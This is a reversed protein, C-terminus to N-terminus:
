RLEKFMWMEANSKANNHTTSWVIIVDRTGQNLQQNRVVVPLTAWSTMQFWIRADYTFKFMCMKIQKPSSQYLLASTVFVLCRAIYIYTVTLPLIHVLGIYEQMKVQVGWNTFAVVGSGTEPTEHRALWIGFSLHNEDQRATAKAWEM